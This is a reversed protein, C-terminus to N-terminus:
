KTVMDICAANHFGHAVISTPVGFTYALGYYIFGDVFQPSPITKTDFGTSTVNHAAAFLVTSFVSAILHRRSPKELGHGVLLHMDLQHDALMLPLSRFLMEEGLPATITAEIREEPTLYEEEICERTPQEGCAEKIEQGISANGAPKATLETTAHAVQLSLNPTVEAGVVAGVCLGAVGRFLGRRSARPPLHGTNSTFESM